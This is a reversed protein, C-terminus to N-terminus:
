LELKMKQLNIGESELPDLSLFFDELYLSCLDLCDNLSKHQINISSYMEQKSSLIYLLNPTESSYMFISIGRDKRLKNKIEQSMPEHYDSSGAILDLNLNPKLTDIFEPELALIQDLNSDIDM